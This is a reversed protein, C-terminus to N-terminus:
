VWPNRKQEAKSNRYATPTVGTYSKFLGTFYDVTTYGLEGSIEYVKKATGTLMTKAQEMKLRTCYESITIGVVGRFRKGMYDKSLEMQESLYDLLRPRCINSQLISVMRQVVADPVRLRYREIINLYEQLVRGIDDQINVGIYIDVSGMIELWPAQKEMKAYVGQLVAAAERRAMLPIDPFVAQLQGTLYGAIQQVTQFDSMLRDYIEDELTNGGLFRGALELAEALKAESFPKEIYEVAGLRMGEKAYAFDHYTSALIIVTRYDLERVRRCLELGDMVPMRIDTILLDYRAAALKDLAERGNTATGAIRYQGQRWLKYRSILFLIDEDDEVFLIQYM